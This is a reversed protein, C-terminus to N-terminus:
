PKREANQCQASFVVDLGPLFAIDARAGLVCGARQIRSLAEGSASLSADEGDAQRVVLSGSMREVGNKDRWSRTEFEEVVGQIVRAGSGLARLAGFSAFVGIALLAGALVLRLKPTTRGRVFALVYIGLLLAPVIQVVVRAWAYVHWDDPLLEVKTLLHGGALGAGWLVSVVVLFVTRRGLSKSGAPAAAGEVNAAM